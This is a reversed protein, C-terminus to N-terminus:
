AKMSQKLTDISSKGNKAYEDLKENYTKKASDITHSVSDSLEGKLRNSEDLLRKRTKKGSNPAFLLGAVTGAVAGVLFGGLVKVTTNM